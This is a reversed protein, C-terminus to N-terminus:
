CVPNIIIVKLASLTFGPEPSLLTPYVRSFDAPQLLDKFTVANMAAPYSDAVM